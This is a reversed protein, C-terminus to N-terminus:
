SAIMSSHNVPRSLSPRPVEALMGEHATRLRAHGLSVALANAHAPSDYAPTPQDGAPPVPFTCPPMPLQCRTSPDGIAIASM